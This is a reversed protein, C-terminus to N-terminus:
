INDEVFMDIADCFDKMVADDSVLLKRLPLSIELQIGLKAVHIFNDDGDGMYRHPPVKVNFNKSLIAALENIKEIDKGGIFIISQDEDAGIKCGHISICLKSKELLPKLKPHMFNNSTVHFQRNDEKSIGQFDFLNYRDKALRNAIKSTFFEIFGGHPSVITVLSQNDVINLAYDIHETKETLLLKLTPYEHM